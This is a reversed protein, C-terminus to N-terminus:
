VDLILNFGSVSLAVKKIIQTGRNEGRIFPVDFPSISQSPWSVEPIILVDLAELPYYSDVM